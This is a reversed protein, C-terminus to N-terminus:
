GRAQLVDMDISCGSSSSGEPRSVKTVNRRLINDELNNQPFDSIYRGKSSVQHLQVLALMSVAFLAANGLIGNMNDLKISKKAFNMGSVLVKFLFNSGKGGQSTCNEASPYVVSNYLNEPSAFRTANCVDGVFARAEEIVEYKNGQHEGLRLALVIRSQELRAVAADREARQQIQVTQLSFMDVTLLYLPKM